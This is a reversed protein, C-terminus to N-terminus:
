GSTDLRHEGDREVRGKPSYSPHEQHDERADEQDNGAIRRLHEAEGAKEAGAIFEDDARAARQTREANRRAPRQASANAAAHAGAIAQNAPTNPTGFVSM